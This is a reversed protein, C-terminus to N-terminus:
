VHRLIPGNKELPKRGAGPRRIRGLPCPALRQALERRGRRITKEDLGSIRAVQRTGGYGLRQAERAAVWRREHEPLRQLLALLQAHEERQRPDAGAGCAPCVCDSARRM